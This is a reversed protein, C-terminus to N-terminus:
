CLKYERGQGGNRDVMLLAGGDGVGEGGRGWRQSSRTDGKLWKDKPEM